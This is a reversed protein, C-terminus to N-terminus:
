VRGTAAGPTEPAVGTPMRTATGTTAGTLQRGGTTEKGTTLKGSTRPMPTARRTSTRTRPSMAPDKRRSTRRSSTLALSEETM